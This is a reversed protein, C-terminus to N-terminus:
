ALGDSKYRVESAREADEHVAGSVDYMWIAEM